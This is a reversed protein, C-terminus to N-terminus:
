LLGSHVLHDLPHFEVGKDIVQFLGTLFDSVEIVQSTSYDTIICFFGIITYICANEICDARM